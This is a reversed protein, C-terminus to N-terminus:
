HGPLVEHNGFARQRWFQTRPVRELQLWPGARRIFEDSVNIFYVDAFVAPIVYKEPEAIVRVRVRPALLRGLVLTQGMRDRSVPGSLLLPRESENISRIAAREEKWGIGKTWWDDARWALATSVLGVAILLGAAAQALLRAGRNPLDLLRTLVVVVALTIGIHCPFLYRPLTSRRGGGLLDLGALVVFPVAALLFALLGNRQRPGFWAFCAAGVGLTLWQVWVVIPGWTDYGDIFGCGLAHRWADQYRDGPPDLLWSTAASVCHWNRYLICAWPFFLVLCLGVAALFGGLLRRGSRDGARELAVFRGAIWCGHALLVLAQLLHTYLGLASLAGYLLWSQPSRTRVARLLAATALVITLAWLCYPRAEQAYLFHLPSAAVLLTGLWAARRDTFAEMCLWFMAPLLLLGFLVSLTRAPLATGEWFRGWLWALAFYAPPTQPDMKAVTDITDMLGREPSIQQCALLDAASFERGNTWDPAHEFPDQGSLYLFTYVEDFWYVKQDIHTLRFFLALSLAV